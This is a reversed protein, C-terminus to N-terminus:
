DVQMKRNEVMSRILAAFIGLIGGLIIGLILIIVKNPKIPTEPIEARGDLRFVSVDDPNIDIQKLFDLQNELGRLENIFP